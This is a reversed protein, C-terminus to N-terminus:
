KCKQKWGNRKRKAIYLVWSLYYGYYTGRHIEMRKQLNFFPKAMKPKRKNNHKQGTDNVYDLLTTSLPDQIQVGAPHRVREREKELIKGVSKGAEIASNIANNPGM